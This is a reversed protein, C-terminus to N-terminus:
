THDRPTSQWQVGCTCAHRPVFKNTICVVCAHCRMSDISDPQVSGVGSRNPDPASVGIILPTTSETQLNLDKQSWKKTMKQLLNLLSLRTDLRTSQESEVAKLSVLRHQKTFPISPSTRLPADSSSAARLENLLASVPTFVRSSTPLACLTRTTARPTSDQCTTNVARVRCGQRPSDM